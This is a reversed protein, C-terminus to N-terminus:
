SSAALAQNPRVGLRLGVWTACVISCVLALASGDFVRGPLGHDLLAGFAPAALAFGLDLGSYVAGYVRGTAGAPAAKKILMDRSPGAVGTGLGALVVLAMAASLPLAGRGALWILAAAFGLALAIL